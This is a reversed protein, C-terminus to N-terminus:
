QFEANDSVKASSFPLREEAENIMLFNITTM